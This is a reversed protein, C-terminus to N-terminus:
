ESQGEKGRAADFLQKRMGEYWEKNAICMGMYCHENFMCVECVLQDVSQMLLDDDSPIEYSEVKRIDEPNRLAFDIIKGNGTKLYRYIEATFSLCDGVEYKEFGDESMWVHDEKGDFFTGDGYMGSVFIRKFCINGKSKKEIQGKFDIVWCDYYCLEFYHRTHNGSAKMIDLYEDYTLREGGVVDKMKDPDFDIIGWETQVGCKQGYCNQKLEEWEEEETPLHPQEKKGEVEEWMVNIGEYFKDM